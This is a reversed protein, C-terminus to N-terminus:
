SSFYEKTTKYAMDIYTKTKESYLFDLGNIGEHNLEIVQDKEEDTRIQLETTMGLLSFLMKELYEPITMSDGPSNVTRKLRFGLVANNLKSSRSNIEDFVHLPFNIGLGGDVIMDGNKLDNNVPLIKGKEYALYVPKFIFPISISMRVADAVCLDGWQKNNRFILVENKTMNFGTLVLDIKFEEYFQKFTCNKIGCKKEIHIDIFERIFESLFFGFEYKLSNLSDNSYLVKDLANKTTPIQLLSNEAEEPHNKKERKGQQDLYWRLLSAVTARNIRNIVKAPLQMIRSTTRKDSRIYHKWFSDLPEQDEPMKRESIIFRPNENTYATPIAGYEVKDLVHIGFNKTLLNYLENPTYGSALLTAAISGVSTGAVGKIKRSSLRFVEKEGVVKKNYSLIELEGLARAVGLYILGKGGGGEFILYRVKRKSVKM